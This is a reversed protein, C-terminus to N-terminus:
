TCPGAIIGQCGKARYVQLADEINQITPNPQVGDFVTFAIGQKDLAECLGKLLGAAVVGKDTVIFVNRIGRARIKEPLQRVSGAGTLLEPVPFPMIATMPKMFYHYARYAVTRLTSTM